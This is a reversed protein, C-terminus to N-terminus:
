AGIELMAVLPDARYDSVALRDRQQAAIITDAAVPAVSGIMALGTLAFGGLAAIADNPLRPKM